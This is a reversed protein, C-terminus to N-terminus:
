EASASTGRYGNDPFGLPHSNFSNESGAPIATSQLWAITVSAGEIKHLGIVLVAAEQSEGRADIAVTTAWLVAVATLASGAFRQSISSRLIL